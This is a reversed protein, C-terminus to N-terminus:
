DGDRAERREYRALYRVAGDSILRVCFRVVAGGILFVAIWTLIARWDSTWFGFLGGPLIMTLVVYGMVRLGAWLVFLQETAM